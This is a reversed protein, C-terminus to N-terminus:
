EKLIRGWPVTSPASGDDWKVVAGEASVATVVGPYFRSKAWVALVREGVKATRGAPIARLGEPQVIGDSGDEYKVTYTAPITEQGVSSKGAPNYTTITAVYWNNDTYRAAVTQGVKFSNGGCAALLAACAALVPLVSSRFM